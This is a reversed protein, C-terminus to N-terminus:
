NRACSTILWMKRIVNGWLVCAIHCLPSISYTLSILSSSHSFHNQLTQILLLTSLTYKDDDDTRQTVFIYQQHSQVAMPSDSTAKIVTQAIPRSAVLPKDVSSLILSSGAGFQAITTRTKGLFPVTIVVSCFLEVASNMAGGEVTDLIEGICKVLRIPCLLESLM